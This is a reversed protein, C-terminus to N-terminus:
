LGTIWPMQTYGIPLKTRCVELSGQFVTRADAGPGPGYPSGREGGRRPDGRQPAPEAQESLKPQSRRHTRTDHAATRRPFCPQPSPQPPPPPPAPPPPTWAPPPGASPR